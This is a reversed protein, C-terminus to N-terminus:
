TASNLKKFLLLKCMSWTNSIEEFSGLVIQFINKFPILCITLIRSEELIILSKLVM